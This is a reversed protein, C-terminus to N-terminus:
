EIDKYNYIPKIIKIIEVTEEINNIIDNISKYAFPSEDITSANISTTYIGEMATIFDELKVERKAETRSLLRGAGHPASYNYAECSKGKAIICGDRMNIPILVEEGKYAAIAGKRLIMDNMNLYNHVTEFYSYNEVKLFNLIKMAIKIRNESAYKQAINMDHIYNDFLENELYCLEEPLLITNKKLNLIRNEIECELKKSKCESIVEKVRKSLRNNSNHYLIAKKQYIDAIQKGINRSGSHIILYLNKDEDKDIEIFHNGGGLTGMTKYHYEFNRIEKLCKLDLINAEVKQNVEYSHQGSPIHKRIFEDIEKLNINIKGLRVCLMGCGIDVGVLNPVIKDIINMTTGIVCGAGTHCDPMIRVNLGKVFEQDLLKKIQEKTSEEIHSAYIIAENYKGNIKLM